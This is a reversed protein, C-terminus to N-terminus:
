CPRKKLTASGACGCIGLTLLLQSYRVLLPQSDYKRKLSDLDDDERVVVESLNCFENSRLIIESCPNTGFDQEADRRGNRGAIKKAAVRSFIGREGAKSDYLTHM